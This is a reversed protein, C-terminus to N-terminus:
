RVQRFEIMYEIDVSWSQLNTQGAVGGEIAIKIGFHNVTLYALDIWKSPENAVSTLGTNDLVATAIRPKIMRVHDQDWRTEKCSQYERLQNILTPVVNDDYDIVSYLRPLRNAAVSGPNSFNFRPRAEWKIARFRYQDFLDTFDATDSVDNLEFRYAMFTDAAAVQTIDSSGVRRVFPYVANALRPQRFMPPVQQLDGYNLNNEETLPDRIVVPLPTRNSARGSRRSRVNRSRNRRQINSRRNSM